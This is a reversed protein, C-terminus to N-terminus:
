DEVWITVGNSVSGDDGIVFVPVQKAISSADPVRVNIQWLGPFEASLGSYVVEASETAILVRPPGAGFGTAFIQIVEGRRARVAATNLSSDQNLIAGPQDGRSLDVLFV